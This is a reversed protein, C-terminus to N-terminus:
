SVAAFIIFLVVLLLFPPATFAEVAGTDGRKRKQVHLAPTNTVGYGTYIRQAAAAFLVLSLFLVCLLVFVLLVGQEGTEAAATYFYRELWLAAVNNAAHVAMSAFVSRTAYMTLALIVGSFFYAPLRVFSLHMMAFLLASMCVACPVSVSEYEAIMIGRFLFEELLAPLICLALIVYLIRFADGSAAAAYGGSAGSFDGEPFLSVMLLNLLSSGSLMSLLAAILLFLHGPPFPRVRLRRMYGKGRLRCFFIAPLAYVILQVVTLTLYPNGGVAPNETELLGATGFLALVVIMLFPAAFVGKIRM